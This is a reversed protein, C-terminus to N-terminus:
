RWRKKVKTPISLTNWTKIRYEQFEIEPYKGGNTIVDYDIAGDETLPINEAFEYPLQAPCGTADEHEAIWARYARNATYYGQANTLTPEEEFEVTKFGM